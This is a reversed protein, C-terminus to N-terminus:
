DRPEVCFNFTIALGEASRTRTFTTPTFASYCRQSTMVFWSECYYASINAETVLAQLDNTNRIPSSNAETM